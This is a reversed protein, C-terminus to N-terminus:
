LSQMSTARTGGLIQVAQLYDLFWLTPEQSGDYKEQDHPLKFGKPVRTKRVRRTFCLAGMEKEDDEYNEERWVYHSNNVRAQAIINRADEKRKQRKEDESSERTENRSFKHKVEEKERASRHISKKEPISGKLKEEVLGLSRITAQHVQERPDGPKPQTTLLYAQAAILAAEPTEQIFEEEEEPQNPSTSRTYSEEVVRATTRRSHKPDRHREMSSESSNTYESWYGESPTSNYDPSRMIMDREQRLKKRHQHLTYQYGMLVERRSDTPVDTGHNVATMIMRWEGALVYVKEKEKKSNSRIKDVQMDVEKNGSHNNEEEAAETIIVCLQHVSRSASSSRSTTDRSKDVIKEGIVEQEIEEPEESRGLLNKAAALSVLLNVESSSGVFSGSATTREAQGASPIPKM